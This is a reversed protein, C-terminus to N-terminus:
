YRYGANDIVTLIISAVFEHLQVENRLLKELSLEGSFVNIKQVLGVKQCWPVILALVGLLM